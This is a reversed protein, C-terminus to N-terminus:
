ALSISLRGSPATEGGLIRVLSALALETYEFAAIGCLEGELRGLDYPRGLAVATVRKGDAALAQALQLQGPHDCGNVLGLIVRSYPKAAEVTRSIEEPAPNMSVTRSACAFAASLRAPFSLHPDPENSAPDTRYPDCGIVIVDPDGHRVPVLEGKVLCMSELSMAAVARKHAECGVVSLDDAGKVAAYKEKYHLVKEVAQDLVAMSLEGTQVAQEMRAVTETVLQPTHSIFLLHVGAQLAALAGEATGYCKRIADMELCDSIVLGDFGMTNKLLGTMIARSMTAPVKKREIAPFLIHASTVCEAGSEFARQFPKLELSMLQELTKNIVPLGLHSDVDTDGHGPFHKVSALVGGDRLGKWMALGYEEVTEATDGYSRVNIVPNAPNSNIDLVPALNMSIGLARLERATIRGAAYANEPRGTSAIAMAVPINAAEHPLRTVRGGEQDISILPLFGTHRLALEQLDACLARLQPVSEVNRSFLIVNGIKYERVLRSFEETVAPGPLGTVILQGIKERLSLRKIGMGTVSGDM